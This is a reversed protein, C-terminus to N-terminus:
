LRLGFNINISIGRPATFYLAECDLSNKKGTYFPLWLGVVSCAGKDSASANNLKENIFYGGVGYALSVKKLIRFRAKQIAHLTNISLENRSFSIEDLSTAFSIQGFSSNHWLAINGYEYSLVLENGSTIVQGIEGIPAFLGLGLCIANFM